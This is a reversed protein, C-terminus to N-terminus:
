NNNVIFHEQGSISNKIDDGFIQLNADFKCGTTNIFFNNIKFNDKTGISCGVNGYRNYYEYSTNSINGSLEFSSDESSYEGQGPDNYTDFFRGDPDYIKGSFFDFNLSKNEGSFGFSVEGTVVDISGQLIFSLERQEALSHTNNGSIIM